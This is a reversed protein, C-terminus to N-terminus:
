VRDIVAFFRVLADAAEHLREIGRTTRAPVRRLAVDCLANYALPGVVCVAKCAALYAEHDSGAELAVFREIAAREAAMVPLPGLPAPVRRYALRAADAARVSIM